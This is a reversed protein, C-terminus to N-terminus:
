AEAPADPPADPEVWALAAVPLLPILVGVCIAIGSVVTADLTVVRGMGLVLVGVVVVAVVVVAALIEYCLVWARDRLQRQREDLNAGYDARDRVFWYLLFAGVVTALILVFSVPGWVIGPVTTRLWFSSWVYMGPLGILSAIAIHRRTRRPLNNIRSRRWDSWNQTM